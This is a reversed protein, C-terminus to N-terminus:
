ADGRYYESHETPNVDTHPAPPHVSRAPTPMPRPAARRDALLRHAVPGALSSSSLGEEHEERPVNASLSLNPAPTTTCPSRTALKPLPPGAARPRRHILRRRRPVLANLSPHAWPPSTRTESAVAAPPAATARRAVSQPRRDCGPLRDDRRQLAAAATKTPPAIGGIAGASTRATARRGPQGRRRDGVAARGRGAGLAPPAGRTSPTSVADIRELAAATAHVRRPLGRGHECVTSSSRM